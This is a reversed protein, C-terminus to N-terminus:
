PARCQGGDKGDPVEDLPLNPIEALADELESSLRSRRRKWHRSPSRESQEGRGDAKRAAEDKDEKGRRDGQVGRQAAGAGGRGQRIAARRREDVGILRQAEHALGRRKSRRDFADPNDRIWKIDHM